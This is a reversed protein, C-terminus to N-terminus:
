AASEALSQNKKAIYIYALGFAVLYCILIACKADLPSRMLLGAGLLTGLATIAANLKLYHIRVPRALAAITAFLSTAGLSTVM